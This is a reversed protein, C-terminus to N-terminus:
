DPPSCLMRNACLFCLTHLFALNLPEHVVLGDLRDSRAAGLEFRLESFQIQSFRHWEPTILRSARGRATGSIVLSHMRM